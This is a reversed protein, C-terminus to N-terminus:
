NGTKTEESYCRIIEGGSVKYEGDALEVSLVELQTYEGDQTRVHERIADYIENAADIDAFYRNSVSEGSKICYDATHRIRYITM